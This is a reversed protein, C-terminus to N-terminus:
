DYLLYPRRREEFAAVGARWNAVVADPAAGADLARRPADAGILLDLFPAGNAGSHWAFSEPALSRLIHLLHIGVETARLAARDTIHLQ